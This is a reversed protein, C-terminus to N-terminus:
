IYLSRNVVREFIINIWVTKLIKREFDYTKSLFDCFRTLHDFNDNMITITHIEYTYLHFEVIDSFPFFHFFLLFSVCNHLVHLLM